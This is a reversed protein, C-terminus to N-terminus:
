GETHSGNPVPEIRFLPGSLTEYYGYVRDVGEQKGYSGPRMRFSIIELADGFIMKCNALATSIFSALVRPRPGVMAIQYEIPFDFIKVEFGLGAVLRLWEQKERRHAGYVLREGAFRARVAALHELHEAQGMIGAETLPSGLFLVGEGRGLDVMSGRLLDFSNVVLRDSPRTQIQFTSFFTLADPERGQMGLLRRKLWGKFRKGQRLGRGQDKGDLRDRAITLTATGDDILITERHPLVSALHRMPLNRYDGLVIREVESDLSRALLSLRRFALTRTRLVGKLPGGRGQRSSNRSGFLPLDSVYLANSWSGNHSLMADIQSRSKRDALNLLLCEDAPLGYYHRAELANILQLPSKILFIHRFL